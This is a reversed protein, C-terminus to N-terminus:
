LKRTTSAEEARHRRSLERFTSARVAENNGAEPGKAGKYPKTEKRKKTKNVLHAWFNLKARPQQILKRRFVISSMRHFPQHKLSAEEKTETKFKRLHSRPWSQNERLNSTGPLNPPRPSSPSSGLHEPTTRHTPPSEGTTTTSSTLNRSAISAASM